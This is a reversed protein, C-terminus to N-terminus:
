LRILIFRENRFIINKLKSLEELTGLIQVASTQLTRYELWNPYLLSNEFFSKNRIGEGSHEWLVYKTNQRNLNQLFENVGAVELHWPTVSWDFHYSDIPNRRYDLLHPAGTLTFIRDGPSVMEQM